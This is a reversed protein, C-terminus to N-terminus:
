NLLAVKESKKTIGRYQNLLKDLKQSLDVTKPHSLGEKMGSEIMLRRYMEIEKHLDM